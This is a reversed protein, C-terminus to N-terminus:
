PRVEFIIIIYKVNVIHDPSEMSITETHVVRGNYKQVYKLLGQEFFSSRAASFSDWVIYQINGSRLQLDPNIVPEYSPNRRLPNPSVSLGYAKREGYFQILNAMSPGLALFRANVPVNQKIWVGMERGGPIGGTGATFQDSVAAQAQSWSASLLVITMVGIAASRILGWNLNFLGRQPQGDASGSGALARGAFVSIPVIIPLLYQYGKVPWLEFFLGPVAIWLLLLKERWTRQRFLIVIGVLAVILVLPNIGGPLVQFYFLPDHNPRRFLQYVFYNQGTSGSRALLLSLPFPLITVVFIGLSVAVDRIRVRLEPSLALFAYIAAIMVVGTEKALFTLGMAVATLYLWLGRGSKAYRALFYLTLTAMTTMPGDLLFQRSVIVHIPMLAIILAAILGTRQSYLLDGIKYAIFIAILGFVVAEVRGAWDNVGTFRYIVALIFQSFLPHARFIPFFPALATNGAIAAATGSYVAEDTNYGMTTLQWLRLFAGEILVLGLFLRNALVQRTSVQTWTNSLVAAPRNAAREYNTM